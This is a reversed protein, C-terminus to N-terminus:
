SAKRRFADMLEQSPENDPQNDGYRQTLNVVTQMQEVFARCYNCALLHMRFKTRAWLTLEGDIYANAEETVDRCSLV